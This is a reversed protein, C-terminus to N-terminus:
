EAKLQMLIQELCRHTFMGLLCRSELASEPVTYRCHVVGVGTLKLRAMAQASWSEKIGLGQLYDLSDVLGKLDGGHRYLNNNTDHEYVTGNADDNSPDGNVFRDLFFTYFPFRWNDPSKHFDHPSWIGSYDLPDTAQQNQNLNYDIEAPDFRLSLASSALLPLLLLGEQLLRM